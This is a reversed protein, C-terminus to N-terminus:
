RWSAASNFFARISRRGIGPYPFPATHLCNRRFWEVGRKEALKNVETPSRRTDVPGGMLTMSASAHPDGDAEM